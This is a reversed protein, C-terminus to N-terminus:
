WDMCETCKCTQVHTWHRVQRRGGRLIGESVVRSQGHHGDKAKWERARQGGRAAKHSRSKDRGEERPCARLPPASFCPASPLPRWTFGLPWPLKWSLRVAGAAVQNWCGLSSAARGASPNPPHPTALPRKRQKQHKYMYFISWHLWGIQKQPVIIPHSLPCLSHPSPPSSSGSSMTVSDASQLSPGLGGSKVARGPCGAELNRTSLLHSGPYFNLIFPLTRTPHHSYTWCSLGTQISHSGGQLPHSLTQTRRNM